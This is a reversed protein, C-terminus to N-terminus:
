AEGSPGLSAAQDRNGGALSCISRDVEFTTGSPPKSACLQGRATHVLTRNRSSALDAHVAFNPYRRTGGRVRVCALTRSRVDKAAKGVANRSM